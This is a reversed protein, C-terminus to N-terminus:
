AVASSVVVASVAGLVIRVVLAAVFVAAAFATLFQSAPWFDFELGRVVVVASSHESILRALYVFHLMSGFSRGRWM